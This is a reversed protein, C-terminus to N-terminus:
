IQLSLKSHKDISPSICNMSMVMSWEYIALENVSQDVPSPKKKELNGITLTPSNLWSLSNANFFM